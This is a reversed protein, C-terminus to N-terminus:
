VLKELATHTYGKSDNPRKTKSNKPKCPALPGTRSTLRGDFSSSSVHTSSDTSASVQVQKLVAPLGSEIGYANDRTHRAEHWGPTLEFLAGTAKSFWPKDGQSRWSYDIIQVCQKM